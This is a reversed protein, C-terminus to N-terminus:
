DEQLAHAAKVAASARNEVGLKVYIQELHKNVTRPSLGLIEGIDRNAKGNALWQLVEAERQTLGFAARLRITQDPSEAGTLRFLYEDPGIAGLPTLQLGNGPKLPGAAASGGAAFWAALGAALVEGGDDRGTAHELLRAAQPTSWRITGDHGVALLHRGVADMALRASQATRANALHVRIRARLEDLNIPKTLYDVGGSELGHVVHETDSLGTMFIVPVPALTGSAKLRRCTEFGDMQPMVADLLIIDPTIREAITLAMAGSTAVLVTAEASELAQTLFGLAEPSDDVVLIIDRRSAPPGPPSTM